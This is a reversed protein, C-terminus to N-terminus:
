EDNDGGDCSSENLDSMTFGCLKAWIVKGLPYIRYRNCFREYLDYLSMAGLEYIKNYTSTVSRHFMNPLRSKDRFGYFDDRLEAMELYCQGYNTWDPIPRDYKQCWEKYEMFTSLVGQKAIDNTVNLVFITGLMDYYEDASITVNEHM